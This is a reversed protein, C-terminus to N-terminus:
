LCSPKKYKEILEELKEMAEQPMEIANLELTIMGSSSRIHLDGYKLLRQLYNQRLDVDTIADMFIHSKNQNLIGRIITVKTEKIQYRNSCISTEISIIIAAIAILFLYSIGKPLSIKQINGLVVLALFIAVCFYEIIFAKRSKRLDMLIKEENAM